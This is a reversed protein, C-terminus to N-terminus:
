GVWEGYFSIGGIWQYRKRTLPDTNPKGIILDQMNECLSMRERFQKESERDQTKSYWRMRVILEVVEERAQDFSLQTPTGYLYKVKVLNRHGFADWLDWYPGLVQIDLIPFKWCELDIIFTGEKIKGLELYRKNFTFYGDESLRRIDKNDKSFGVVHYANMRLFPASPEAPADVIAM